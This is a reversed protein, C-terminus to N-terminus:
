EYQQEAWENSREAGTLGIIFIHKAYTVAWGSDMFTSGLIWESAKNASAQTKQSNCFCPSIDTKIDTEQAKSGGEEWVHYLSRCCM